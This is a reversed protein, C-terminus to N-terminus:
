PGFRLIRSPEWFEGDDEFHDYNSAVIVGGIDPGGVGFIRCNSRPDIVNPGVYHVIEERCIRVAACRALDAMGREIGHIPGTAGAGAECANSRCGTRDLRGRIALGPQPFGNDTGKCSHFLTRRCPAQRYM